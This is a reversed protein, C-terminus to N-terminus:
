IIFTSNVKPLHFQVILETGTQAATVDLQGRSASEGRITTNIGLGAFKWGGVKIVPIGQPLSM